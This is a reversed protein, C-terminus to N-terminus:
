PLSAWLRPPRRLPMRQVLGYAKISYPTGPQHDTGTVDHPARRSVMVEINFAGNKVRVYLSHAASSCHTPEQAKRHPQFHSFVPVQNPSKSWHFSAPPFPYAKSVRKASSCAHLGSVAGFAGTLMVDTSTSPPFPLSCGCMPKLTALPAVAWTSTWTWPRTSSTLHTTVWSLSEWELPLTCSSLMEGSPPTTFTQLPLPSLPNTSVELSSTDLPVDYLNYTRTRARPSVPM